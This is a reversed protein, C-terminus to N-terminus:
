GSCYRETAHLFAEGEKKAHLRSVFAHHRKGLVLVLGHRGEVRVHVAVGRGVHGQVLRVGHGRLVIAVVLVISIVWSMSEREIM